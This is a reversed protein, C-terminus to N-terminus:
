DRYQDPHPHRFQWFRRRANLILRLAYEKDIARAQAYEDAIIRFMETAGWLRAFNSCGDVVSVSGTRLRNIDVICFKWEGNVSDFLINGPSYDLHLFGKQHMDATMRTFARLMPEPALEPHSGIEFFTHGLTSQETILYSETLLGEGCLIYAIPRPTAIGVRLLRTANEYARVAKPQRLWSYVIRNLWMPQCYRKVNYTRGDPGEIVRIQNRADYIVKGQQSFTDPLQEIWSRLSPYADNLVVTM